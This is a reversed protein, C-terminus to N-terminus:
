ERHPHQQALLLRLYSRREVQPGLGLQEALQLVVQRAEDLEEPPATTELEVYQGLGEVEDLVIEVDRGSVQWAYVERRKRVRHVSEFGLRSLMTRLQQAEAEGEAFPIEIEERTKTATDLLPGKFTLRNAQDIQRIRLAEDTKAFDRCPHNWYEDAQTDTRLLEVPLARLRARFAVEDLLPYKVEVEYKM